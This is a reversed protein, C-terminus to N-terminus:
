HQDNSEAMRTGASAYPWVGNHGRRSIGGGLQISSAIRIRRDRRHNRWFSRVRSRRWLRPGANIGEHRCQAVVLKGDDFVYHSVLKNIFEAAARSFVTTIPRMPKLNNSRNRGIWPHGARGQGLDQAHIQYRSQRARVPATGANVSEMVLRVVLPIKPGRDVLDGVFVLKRDEPHRWSGGPQEAYGLTGLLETLEDYCGHVDGIIDFPGHDNRRNNWLPQREMVVSEVEEPTRLIFVHRFGERELGRLSRRLQQTQQRIVHPGFDRDSRGKNRDHALREPLDLVIAVPLCHFERALAVLPKRSESQVNTADVVTLKGAALRKRAIFHLVEFADNTAAQNNEDDSVLGRCSDSSLIETAKFHKRAFTSKGSGSAGILVVLSLEPVTITM